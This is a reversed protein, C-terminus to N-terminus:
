IKCIEPKNIYRNIVDKSKKLCHTILRNLKKQKHYADTKNKRESLRLDHPM